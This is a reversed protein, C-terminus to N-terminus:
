QAVSRVQELTRAVEAPVTESYRRMVVSKRGPGVCTLTPGAEDYRCTTLTSRAEEADKPDLAVMRATLTTGDLTAHLPFGAIARVEPGADGKGDIRQPPSTSGVVVGYGDADLHMQSQGAKGEYLSEATGWTGTLKAPLVDAAAVAAHWALMCALLVTRKGPAPTWRSHRDM